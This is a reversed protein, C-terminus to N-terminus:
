KLPRRGRWSGTSTEFFLRERSPSASAASPETTGPEARISFSTEMGSTTVGAIRYDADPADQYIQALYHKGPTLFDLSVHRRFPLQEGLSKGVSLRDHGHHTLAM